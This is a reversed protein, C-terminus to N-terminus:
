FLTLISQKFMLTLFSFFLSKSKSLTKINVVQSFESKENKSNVICLRYAYETYCERSEINKIIGYGQYVNILENISKSSREQLIFKFRQNKPLNKQVHKWNCEISHHTIKGIVPPDPKLVSKSENEQQLEIEAHLTEGESVLLM